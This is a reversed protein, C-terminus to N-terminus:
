QSSTSGASPANTWVRNSRARSVAARDPAAPGVAGNVPTGAANLSLTCTSPAGMVIPERATGGFGARRWAGEAGSSRAVPGLGIPLVAMGGNPQVPAVA